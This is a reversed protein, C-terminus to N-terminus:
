QRLSLIARNELFDVSFDARAQDAFRPAIFPHQTELALGFLRKGCAEHSAV